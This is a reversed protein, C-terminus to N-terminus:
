PTRKHKLGKRHVVKMRGGAKRVKLFGGKRLRVKRHKAKLKARLRASRNAAM